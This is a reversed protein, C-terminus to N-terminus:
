WTLEKSIVAGGTVPTVAFPPPVDSRERAGFFLYVAGIGATVVAAGYAVNSILRWKNARSRAAEFDARTRLPEVSTDIAGPPRATEVRVIERAEDSAHSAILTSAFGFAAIAAGGGLLGLGVHERHERSATEVLEPAVATKQGANIRVRRRWADKHPLRVEIVHTGTALSIKGDVPAPAAAGDVEIEFPDRGEVVLWGNAKAEPKKIDLDVDRQAGPDPELDLSVDTVIGGLANVKVHAPKWGAKEVDVELPGPTIPRPALPTGGYTLGGIKVTAGPVNTVVAIAASEGLEDRYPTRGAQLRCNDHVKRTDAIEASQPNLEIARRASDICDQWRAQAQAVAALFRNPGPLKPDLARAKELHTRAEDLKGLRYADVGAQFERTLDQPPQAHALQALGLLLLASPVVRVAIM